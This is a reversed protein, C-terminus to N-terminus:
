KIDQDSINELTVKKSVFLGSRYLFLRTVIFVRHLGHPFLIGLTRAAQDSQTDRISGLNVWRHFYYIFMRNQKRTLVNIVRKPSMDHGIRYRAIRHVIETFSIFRPGAPVSTTDRDASNRQNRYRTLPFRSAAIGAPITKDVRTAVWDCDTLPLVTSDASFCQHM